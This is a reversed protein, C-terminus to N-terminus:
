EGGTVLWHKYAEVSWPRGLFNALLTGAPASSGPALVEDRYRRALATNRLGQKRFVSYLDISIAKSWVYTYYISSYGNLHGFADFPYTGPLYHYASYKEYQDEWLPVLDVQDAPRDHYALSVASYALQTRAGLAEGFSRGARMKAVLSQPITEGKANVAFGKLTDDDWVWNELLQSPAEVFDWEIEGFNQVAYDQQGSFMWHLLHGFEHLFTEVDGHEMLGTTHDGAPFNCILAGVPVARDRLGPRIPFQAAHNYKGDRPHMDLYFRGILKGDQWLEYPEVSPDWVETKWPRMEVGFLDQTLKLIGDRVNNYAFYQRVVQPDVDFQEKRVLQNLYSSSWRPVETANPDIQQLRALLKGYDRESAVKAAGAIEDLFHRVNEPSRIMKDSTILASYNPYGLTTALEYRKALLDKLVADNEPHARSDYVFLLRKRVDENKAYTMVPVFDPYETTIHILGDAAPKHRDIYDQPLGDLEAPSKVTIEKRGERINRDFTLGLATIEEQLRAVKARTAEDKDVGARRYADLTRNLLYASQADGAKPDIASLRDYVGRSLGIRTILDSLKQVCAEAAARIEKHPNTESVLHADNAGANVVSYLADFRRFTTAITAPGTEGELAALLTNGEALYADCNANVEAPSAPTVRARAVFADTETSVADRAVAIRAAPRTTTAADAAGATLLGAMIVGCIAGGRM